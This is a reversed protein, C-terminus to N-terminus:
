TMPACRSALLAPILLALVALAAALGVAAFCVAADFVIFMLISTKVAQQVTHQEPKLIGQLMMGGAFGILVAWLAIWVTTSIRLEGVAPLLAMLVIGGLMAAGAFSLDRRRSTAAEQRAFWTLGTAYVGVGVAFLQVASQQLPFQLSLGVSAGLLVNLGRCCGMVLPGFWHRKLGVDYGVISAALGLGMAASTWQETILSVTWACVLGGALLLWGVIMARGPSIRGSPIPREPREAADQRRDFVDNLVMGAEYLLVSAAILLLLPSVPRWQGQVLLFGAVVNTAATPANGIRLLQWWALLRSRRNENMQM